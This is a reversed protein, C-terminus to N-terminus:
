NKTMYKPIKIDILGKEFPEAIVNQIAYKNTNIYLLGTLAEINKKKQPKFSIIYTTDKNQFLTDEIMFTYKKLSGKAIPNLYNIDLITIIDKYFSFPQIDSGISAFSPRKLGSVKSAIVVEENIDPKIFKRETVSESFLMHGGKLFTKLRYKLSDTDDADSPVLDYVEKNYSTYKFSAINEPNNLNKNAIVRRIIRNAPNEGAKVIVEQLVHQSPHLEILLQNKTKITSLDLHLDEYGVYSCTLKGTNIASRFSFGGDIDTTTGFYPNGNFIINVFALAKKTKSDIIKGQVFDQSYSINFCFTAILLILLSKLKRM